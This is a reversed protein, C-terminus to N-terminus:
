PATLKLGNTAAFGMAGGPDPLWAQVWISTAPPVNEPWIGLVAVSGAVDLPVAPSVVAPFPVLTGGLLPVFAPAGGVIFHATGHAIGGQVSLVITEGGFMYGDAVLSPTGAGGALAGGVNQIDAGYTADFELAGVDDPGVHDICPSGPRLHFEGDLPKWLLPDTVLVNTMVAGTVDQVKILGVCANFVGVSSITFNRYDWTANGFVITHDAYVGLGKEEIGVDNGFITCHVFTPGVAFSGYDNGTLICREVRVYDVDSVGITSATITFGVLECLPKGPQLVYESHYAPGPNQARLTTVLAGGQSEVRIGLNPVAVNEVYEGPAVSVTDGAAAHDVGKQITRFPKAASGDAVQTAAADVYWTTQAAAAPALLLAAAIALARVPVANMM